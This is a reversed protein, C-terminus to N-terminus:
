NPIQIAKLRWENYSISELGISKRISDIDKSNLLPPDIKNNTSTYSGYFQKNSNEWMKRDYITAYVRPDCNGKKVNDLIIPLYKKKFDDTQHLFIVKINVYDDFSNNSGILSISPYGYKNFIDELEKSNKLDVSDFESDKGKVRISQDENTMKVLRNRLELNVKSKYKNKLLIIEEKNLRAAKIVGVYIAVWEKHNTTITGFNSLGFRVKNEIDEFHDSMVASSLYVSYEQYTDTNLPRYIKFLSDLKRYSKEFDGIQYLSDAKQSELYYPIYNFKKNNIENSNIKLTSGCSILIFFLFILLVTDKM